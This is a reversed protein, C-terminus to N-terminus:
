IEEKKFNDYIGQANREEFKKKMQETVQEEDEGYIRDLVCDNGYCLSVIWGTATPHVFLNFGEELEIKTSRGM